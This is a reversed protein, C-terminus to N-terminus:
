GRSRIDSCGAAYRDRRRRAPRCCRRARSCDRKAPALFGEPLLGVGVEDFEDNQQVFDGVVVDSKEIDVFARNRGSTRSACFGRLRVGGRLASNEGRNRRLVQIAWTLSSLSTRSQRQRPCRFTGRRLVRRAYARKRSVLFGDFKLAQAFRSEVLDIGLALFLQLGDLAPEVVIPSPDLRFQARGNDFSDGNEKGKNSSLGATM